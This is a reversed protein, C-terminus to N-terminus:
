RWGRVSRGVPRRPRYAGSVKALAKLWPPTGVFEVFAAVALCGLAVTLFVPWEEVMVLALILSIAALVAFIVASFRDDDLTLNEYLSRSEVPTRVM